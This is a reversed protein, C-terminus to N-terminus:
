IDENGRRQEWYSSGHHSQSMCEEQYVGLKVQDLFVQPKTM